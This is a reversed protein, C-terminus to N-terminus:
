RNGGYRILRGIGGRGGPNTFTAAPLTSRGQRPGNIALREKEAKDYYEKALNLYMKSIDAKGSSKGEATTNVQRAYRNSLAYYGEEAAYLCVVNFQPATLGQYDTTANQGAMPMTDIQGLGFNVFNDIESLLFHQYNYQAFLSTPVMYSLAPPATFTVWGHSYDVSSIGSNTFGSQNLDYFLSSTGANVINPKSLTFVTRTGNGGVVQITLDEVMRNNNTNGTDQLFEQVQAEYQAQTWPM